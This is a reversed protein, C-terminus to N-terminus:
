NKQKTSDLKVAEDIAKIAEDYKGQANLVNGRSNWAIALNPDLRIAEDIAKIAEDYNGQNSLATGKNNWAMASKPDLRIAEDIAKIAEDYNGQNSLDTGKNTWAVFYKPDLEIAEDYTTVAEDYKGQKSLATGKNNWAMASKPDLRIAENYAEVAEDYKGQKSLSTGKNTWAAFSKPDLEIAEDYAQIAEDYKGQKSLATGKNYWELALNPDLRVANTLSKSGSVSNDQGPDFHLRKGFLVDKEETVFGDLISRKIQDQVSLPIENIEILYNRISAFNIGGQSRRYSLTRTGKPIKTTTNEWCKYESNKFSYVFKDWIDNPSWPKISKLMTSNSSGLSERFIDMHSTIESKYWQALALAVYVERLDEYKEGHNVDWVVYPQIMRDDLEKDYEGYEKASKNLEELCGKSLTRNEQNNVQFSSHNAVPESNVSLSANIIYIQTGNTYAYVKDPVIWHRTVPNFCVNNIDKIEGPFKNMCQQVLAERKKDLLSWLAKGTENACPNGYNSFDRKMQLDAELMIRGVESQGLEEDIIRDMEWPNLNVWFKNDNVVLGTMFATAGIRTANQINIGPSTGEAKQGKLILDLNVGGSSDTSVSICNLKISTFNVGGLDSEKTNSEDPPPSTTPYLTPIAQTIPELGQAIDTSAETSQYTEAFAEAALRRGESYADFAATSTEQTNSQLTDTPNTEQWQPTGVGLLDVLQNSKEEEIVAPNGESYAGFAATSTKQTNSQLTDTPNTEQWQPTGVGLVDVLQNSKEESAYWSEKSIETITDGKLDFYYVNPITAKQLDLITPDYTPNYQPFPVGYARLVDNTLGLCDNQTLLYGSDEIGVFKNSASGPYSKEVPIIKIKDYAAHGPYDTSADPLTDSFFEKIVEEKTNFEKYWGGNKDGQAINGASNYGEVGGAIWKGTFSNYFAVGVHGAGAASGTRVAVIATGETPGQVWTPGSTSPEISSLEGSTGQDAASVQWGSFCLVLSFFVM